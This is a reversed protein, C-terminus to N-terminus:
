ENKRIWLPHKFGRVGGQTYVRRLKIKGALDERFLPNIRPDLTRDKIEAWLTVNNDLLRVGKHRNHRPPEPVNLKDYIIKLDLREKYRASQKFEASTHANSAM